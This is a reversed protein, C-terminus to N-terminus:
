KAIGTNLLKALADMAPKPGIYTDGNYSDALIKGYHDVIVLQPIGGRVYSLLVPKANLRALPMSPWPMKEENMYGLMDKDEKDNSMFVVTLRPNQAAVSNIFKVFSPSFERCPQCWSAGYYLAFVKTQDFDAKAFPKGSADVLSDSLSAVIRSPRKAPDVLVQERARRIVDTQSVDTLIKTNSSSQILQVGDKNITVLDLETGPAIVAGGELKFGSSANVKQPWISPDDLLTTADVARQAPTLAAWNKNAAALFDCDAIPVGFVLDNGADVIVKSGDFDVVHVQQGAQATKGSGFRLNKKLAVTEPWRDPHNFLDGASLVQPPAAATCLFLCV